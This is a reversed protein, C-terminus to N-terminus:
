AAMVLSRSREGPHFLRWGLRGIYGFAFGLLARAGVIGSRRVAIIEDGPRFGAEAGFTGETITTVTIVNDAM